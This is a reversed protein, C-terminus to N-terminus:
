TIFTCEVEARVHVWICRYVGTCLATYVCVHVGGGGCLCLAAKVSTIQHNKKFICAM